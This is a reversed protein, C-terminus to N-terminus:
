RRVKELHNVRPHYVHGDAEVLYSEGKRERGDYKAGAMPPPVTYEPVVRIVKGRKTRTGGGAHSTWEVRDGVKFTKAKIVKATKTKTKTKTKTAVLEIEEGTLGAMYEALSLGVGLLVVLFVWGFASNM